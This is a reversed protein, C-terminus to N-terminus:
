LISVQYQKLISCNLQELRLIPIQSPYQNQGGSKINPLGGLVKYM